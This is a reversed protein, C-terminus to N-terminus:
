GAASEEEQAAAKGEGRGGRGKRGEEKGRRRERSRRPSAREMGAFEQAGIFASAGARGGGGRRADDAAACLWGSGDWRWRRQVATRRAALGGSCRRETSRWGNFGEGDGLHAM